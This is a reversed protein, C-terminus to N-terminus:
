DKRWVVPLYINITPQITFSAINSIGENPDPNNVTVGITRAQTLQDASIQAILQSNNVFSTPCPVSNWIVSAGSVFHSGNVTLAFGQSGLLVSNPSLDGIIPTPNRVVFFFPNSVLSDSGPNRVTVEVIGANTVHAASVIAALLSSNSFTTSLAENDWYVTAGDLFNEGNVELTFDPIGVTTSIPDLSNIQPLSGLATVAWTDPKNGTAHYPWSYAGGTLGKNYIHVLM